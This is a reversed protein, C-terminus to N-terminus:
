VMVFASIDIDTTVVLLPIDFKKAVELLMSNVLPTCSILMDPKHQLVYFRSLDVFLHTHMLKKLSM